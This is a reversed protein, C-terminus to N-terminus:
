LNEEKKNYFEIFGKFKLIRKAKHNLDHKFCKAGQYCTAHHHKMIRGTEILTKGRIFILVYFCAQRATIVKLHRDRGTIENYSIGAFDAVRQVDPDRPEAGPYTYHNM